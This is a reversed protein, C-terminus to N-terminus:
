GRKRNNSRRLRGFLFSGAWLIIMLAVLGITVLWLSPTVNLYQFWRDTIFGLLVLSGDFILASLAVGLCFSPYPIRITGSAISVLTLLSTLRSMAVALFAKSNLKTQIITLGNEVSKFRRSLWDMLRGGLLRGLLYIASAGVERGIFVVLVIRLVDISIPGNQYASLFIASDLVFPFPIGLETLVVIFFLAALATINGGALAAMAQSILNDLWVEV